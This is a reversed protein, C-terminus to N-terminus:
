ISMAYNAYMYYTAATLGQNQLWVIHKNIVPMKTVKASKM